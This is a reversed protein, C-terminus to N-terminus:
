ISFDTQKGDAWCLWWIWVDNVVLTYKQSIWPISWCDSKYGGAALARPIELSWHYIKTRIGLTTVPKILLELDSLILLCGYLHKEYCSSLHITILLELDSSILLCGYLHKEYCSSLHITILLELDSLILLCGYLHKEYCSSLHITILLELDSLILLCGYLHKEYCSSLHIAIYYIMTDVTIVRWLLRYEYWVPIENQTNHKITVQHINGRQKSDGWVIDTKVKGINRKSNDKWKTPKFKM